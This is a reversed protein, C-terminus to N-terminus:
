RVKWRIFASTIGEDSLDQIIEANMKKYFNLAKPNRDSVYSYVEKVKRTKTFDLVKRFLQTGKGKGRYTPQIYMYMLEFPDSVMDFDNGVWGEEKFVKKWVKMKAPSFGIVSFGIKKEGDTQFIVYVYSNREEDSAEFEKNIRHVFHKYQNDGGVIDSIERIEDRGMFSM